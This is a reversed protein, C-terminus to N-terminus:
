VFTVLTGERLLISVSMFSNHQSPITSTVFAEQTDPFLRWAWLIGCSSFFYPGERFGYQRPVVFLTVCGKSAFFKLVMDDVHNDDTALLINKLFRSCFVDDHHSYHHLKDQMADPTVENGGFDVCTLLDYDV